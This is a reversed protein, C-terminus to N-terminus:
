GEQEGGKQHSATDTPFAAQVHAPETHGKGERSRLTGLGLGCTLLGPVCPQVKSDVGM